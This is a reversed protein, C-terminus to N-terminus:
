LLAHVQAEEGAARPLRALDLRILAAGAQDLIREHVMLAEVFFRKAATTRRMAAMANGLDRLLRGEGIVDGGDRCLELAQTLTRVGADHEGRQVLVQGVRRLARAQGGVYGVSSYSSLAEDLEARALDDEGHRMRIHARQTLVAARGVVDGVQDFDALATRYLELASRDHGHIRDLLALDRRCLALGHREGAREFLALAERLVAYSEEYRSRSLYLSGLSSLLAATGRENGAARVATLGQRHTREWQEHCGRVEFLTVLTTALDWSLEHMEEEAAQQVAQCLNLQEGDLWDLPNVLLEDECTRPLRWRPAAGHLVTFDGGYIRRHAQEALSLWGGLMREVAARRSQPREHAALQERAFVRIVEHFRYRFGGTSEVGVVDLMQVDVLPELLDSPFPRRDDLLTGALWGPLTTGQALSLLRLLRRDEAVLGDHTLALSARMTMEGHALEDLRHRESALREVMSALTWHPRAALRASVIRLALPLGGVTRILAEAAAPEREVRDAGIVRALLTLAQEIGMVDLEARHAGPLATLRVRSTVLVACTGSGPLLPQVQQESAADDLVVLVRRGALLTRYMEAREDLAEPIMPGPIGLARLFRGLVETAPAPGRGTGRLDCYLQGDPFGSESLRHAVHTALTSKGTGPKGVIVALGVANCTGDGTLAREIQAVREEDAVFDATDAPLQRSVEERHAAPASLAPGAALSRETGAEASGGPPPNAPQQLAPDGALIAAELERLEDGPDLGLEDALLKRGSRYTELAEAQRGSRYLALMLQGRLRERLPHQHVLHQIEGILEHHRGLELELELRTEIATLREEDLQLAKCRLTESALGSLGDGLWLEGAARLVEAAEARRGERTLLRAEALRRAFVAADVTNEDAMLVYGHPRTTIAADLGAGAFLKRLRSVCIQVQTRATDPPEDDWILDVLFDATVLRNVELLLAALIIEQRGSPIRVTGQEGVVQLPGLIRFVVHEGFASEGSWHSM